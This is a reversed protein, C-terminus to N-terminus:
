LWSHAIIEDRCTVQLITFWLEERRGYLIHPSGRWSNPIIYSDCMGIVCICIAYRDCMDRWIDYARWICAEYLLEYLLTYRTNNQLECRCVWVKWSNYFTDWILHIHNSALVCSTNLTTFSGHLMDHYPGTGWTVLAYWVEVWVKWHRM